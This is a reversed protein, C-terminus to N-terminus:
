NAKAGRSVVLALEDDDFFSVDIIETGDNLKLKVSELSPRAPTRRSVTM